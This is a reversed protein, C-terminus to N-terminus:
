QKTFVRGVSIPYVGVGLDWDFPDSITMTNGSFTATNYTTFTPGMLDQFVLSASGINNATEDIAMGIVGPTTDQLQAAPYAANWLNHFNAHTLTRVTVTTSLSHLDIDVGNTVNASVGKVDITGTQTYSMSNEGGQCNTAGDFYFRNQTFNGNSSITFMILQSSGNQFATGYTGNAFNDCSAWTGIFRSLESDSLVSDEKDKKQCGVTVVTALLLALVSFKM